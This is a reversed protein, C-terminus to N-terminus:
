VNEGVDPCHIAFPDKVIVTFGIAIGENVATAGIQEPVVNAAKGVVEVLEIIPVQDGAGFLKAVVV